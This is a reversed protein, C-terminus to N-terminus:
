GLTRMGSRLDVNVAELFSEVVAAANKTPTEPQLCKAPGLIYGGNKGMAGCLRQVEERIEAPTGFPILRQSGVGGWFTIDKGFERKLEYPDMAEPQVSQLVDLGIEVVDPLIDRINGCCHNLTFKGAKHVKEYLKAQYPKIFRRWREPGLIVGRQDGWDDSFMFGDVPATLLEDLLSMQLECIRDVLREYFAPEAASDILANQFGRLTWSREFLGFGFGLVLFKEAHLNVEGELNRRRGAPLLDSIKPFVYRELDPEKLAPEELHLPRRDGRWRTGYVDTFVPKTDDIAAGHNSAGELGLIHNHNVVVKRWGAGGYHEDLREAVDGEFDLRAMPLHDTERHRIQEIVREKQTM